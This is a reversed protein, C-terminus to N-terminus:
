LILLEGLYYALKMKMFELINSRLLNIKRMLVPIKKFTIILM